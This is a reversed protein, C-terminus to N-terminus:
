PLLGHDPSFSIVTLRVIIAVVKRSLLMKDFPENLYLYKNRNSPISRHGLSSLIIVEHLSFINSPM